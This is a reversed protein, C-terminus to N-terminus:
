IPNQLSNELIYKGLQIPGKARRGRRREGERRHPHRYVAKKIERQKKVLRVAFLGDPRLSLYLPPPPPPPERTRRDVATLLSPIIEMNRWHPGDALWVGGKAM